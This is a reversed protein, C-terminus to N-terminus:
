ATPARGATLALSVQRRLESMTFPKALLGAVQFEPFSNEAGSDTVHGTLVLVAPPNDLDLEQLASLFDRGSMKPMQLDVLVLDLSDEGALRLAEEGDDTTEILYGDRTLARCVIDRVVQEDDLLLIRGHAPPDIVEPADAEATPEAAQLFPLRLIFSSGKGPSSEVSLSGDHNVAITHCVSLGLGSGRVTAQLSDPSAHEGKTSFFPTFIRPLDEQEIGCGNDDVRVWVEDGDLGTAVSIKREQRGLLAHRANLLLNLVVQGIQVRDFLMPPIPLIAEEFTIGESSMEGKVLALSEEVVEDLRGPSIRTRNRNSISLLSGTLEKSRLAASRVLDFFAAAQPPLGEQQLGLEAYGLVGTNINNFEHAVGSTLTGVAAMREAAILMEEQRKRESINEVLGDLVENDGSRNLTVHLLAWSPEDCGRTKMRVEFNSVSGQQRLLEILRERDRPDHYFEHMRRKRLAELNRCGAMRVLEHNANLISGDLRTRFVGVNLNQVLSRYQEEARELFREAHRRGLTQDELDQQIREFCSATESIELFRSSSLAPVDRWAMEPQSQAFRRLGLIPRSMSAALWCAFLSALVSIGLAVLRAHHRNARLAGLYDDEPMYMGIVWPWHPDPFPSFMALYAKGEHTFKAFRAQELHLPAGEALPLGAAVVASRSLPDAFEDITVLRKSAKQGQQFYKIKEVDHFAVVERNRNLLLARGNNGIRLRSIFTSLQDIEIDVGVVGRLSGDARLSPGSITVGPNQSTYFIYPDTWFIGGSTVAGQYWPRRRPDYHDEVPREIGVANGEADWWDLRVQREGEGDYTIEKTRFGNPSRNANRSVYYFEGEPTGLYIGAIDPYIKLQNLFYVELAPLNEQGLVRSKLLRKTLDAAQEAKGLYNQSQEMAYAAINDMILRVHAELTRESNYQGLSATVLYTGWIVVLFSVLLASRISIKV